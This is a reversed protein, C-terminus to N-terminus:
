PRPKSSAWLAAVRLQQLTDAHGHDTWANLPCHSDPLLTPQCALLVQVLVAGMVPVSCANGAAHVVEAKSLGQALEPPFGQLTLREVLHLGRSIGHDPLVM